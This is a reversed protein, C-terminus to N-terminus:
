GSKQVGKDLIENVAGIIMWNEFPKTIYSCFGAEIAQAMVDENNMTSLGIISVNTLKRLIRRAATIGNDKPMVIDMIIIDPMHKVALQVAEEGDEAEAVVRWGQKQALTKLIERIFSADDVILIRPTM